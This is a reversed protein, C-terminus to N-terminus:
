SLNEDTTEVLRGFWVLYYAQTSSWGRERTPNSVILSLAFSSAMPALPFKGFPRQGYDERSLWM